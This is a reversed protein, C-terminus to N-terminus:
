SYLAFYQRMFSSFDDSIRRDIRGRFVDFSVVPCEGDVTETLDLCWCVEDDHFYIVVLGVPLNFRARCELTDALATGGNMLTADDGEIGSIDAAVIGGGGYESLFRKYSDPLVANLLQELRSVEHESAGGYWFVENGSSEAAAALDDYEAM